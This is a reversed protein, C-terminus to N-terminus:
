TPVFSATCACITEESSEFSFARREGGLSNVFESIYPTSDFGVGLELIPGTTAKLAM